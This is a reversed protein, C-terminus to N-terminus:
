LRVGQLINIAAKSIQINALYRTSV